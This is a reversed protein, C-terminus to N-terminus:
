RRVSGDSRFLTNFYDNELIATSLNIRNNVINRIRSVYDDPVTVDPAPTFSSNSGNFFGYDTIWSRNLWFVLPEAESFVDRGSFLRSDFELGFLNLLTPLIDLSFTPSSVEYALDKHENELSGSWIILASSDRDALTNVPYGFLESLYEKDTGWSNSHELAYPYHDTSLVIVTDDAIGARELVEILYELAYELELNCAMYARIFSSMGDYQEPFANWNKRAMNNGTNSYNGHGSITMYYVSFPREYIFQPVSYEMMELDSAPWVAKVHGTMGNNLASFTSYGFKTHTSNRNYYTYTGNHYAASFYGLSQLRNGITFSANQDAAIRISRVGSTPAHGTIISYEGGSTSSGWGPQYYDSFYFGNNVLRYLTPTMVPDVVQKSFAEATILILNKGEFIGTHANQRSGSLSSVYEHVGRIRSNRENDILDDFNFNIENYGYEVPQPGIEPLSGSPIGPSVPPQVDPPQEPASSPPPQPDKVIFVATHPNGFASYRLDLMIGTLLGLRRSSGDFNYDATYAAMDNESVALVVMNGVMFVILMMTVFTLRRTRNKKSVNMFRFHKGTFVLFLALPLMFALIVHIGSLIALFFVGTFEGIVNGAGFFISDFTMFSRYSTYMFYQLAYVISLSGLLIASVVRSVKPSAFLLSIFGIAFGASISVLLAYPLGQLFSYDCFARLLIEFYVASLPMFIYPTLSRLMLIARLLFLQASNLPLSNDAYPRDWKEFKERSDMISLIYDASRSTM